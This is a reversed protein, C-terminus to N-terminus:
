VRYLPIESMLRDATFGTALDQIGAAFAFVVDLDYLDEREWMRQFDMNM